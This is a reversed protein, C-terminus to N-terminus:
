WWNLKRQGTQPFDSERWIRCWGFPWAAAESQKLFCKSYIMDHELQHQPLSFPSLPNLWFHCLRRVTWKTNGSASLPPNQPEHLWDQPKTVTTTNTGPHQQSAGCVLDERLTSETIGFPALPNFAARADKTRKPMERFSVSFACFWPWAILYGIFVSNLLVPYWPFFHLWFLFIKVSLHKLGLYVFEKYEHSLLCVSM